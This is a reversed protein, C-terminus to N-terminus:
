EEVPRAVRGEILHRASEEDAADFEDGPERWFGDYFEHRVAVLRTGAPIPNEPNTEDGDQADVQPEVNEAQPESEVSETTKDVNEAQPEPKSPQRKRQAM